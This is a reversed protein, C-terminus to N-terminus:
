RAPEPALSEAGPSGTDAVPRSTLVAYSVQGGKGTTLLVTALHGCATEGMALLHASPRDAAHLLTAGAAFHDVSPLESYIPAWRSVSGAADFRVERVILRHRLEDPLTCDMPSVGHSRDIMTTEKEPHPSSTPEGSQGPVASLRLRVRGPREPRITCYSQAPIAVDAPRVNRDRAIEAAVMTADPLSIAPHATNGLVACLIDARAEALPDAQDVRCAAVLDHVGAQWWYEPSGARSTVYLADEITRESEHRLGAVIDDVEADVGSPPGDRLAGLRFMLERCRALEPRYGRMCWTGRGGRPGPRHDLDYGARWLASIFRLIRESTRASCRRGTFSNVHLGDPSVLAALWTRQASGRALRRAADLENARLAVHSGTSCTTTETTKANMRRVTGRTQPADIPLHCGVAHIQDGFAGFSGSQFRPRRNDPGEPVRGHENRTPPRAQPPGAVEPAPWRIPAGSAIAAVM